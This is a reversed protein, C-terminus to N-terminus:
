ISSAAFLNREEIKCIFDFNNYNDSFTSENEQEVILWDHIDYPLEKEIEM